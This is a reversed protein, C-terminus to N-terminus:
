RAKLEGSKTLAAYTSPADWKQTKGALQPVYENGSNGDAGYVMVYVDGNVAAANPAITQIAEYPVFIGVKTGDADERKFFEVGPFRSLNKYSREGEAFASPVLTPM